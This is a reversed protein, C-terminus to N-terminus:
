IQLVKSSASSPLAGQLRRLPSLHGSVSVNLFWTRRFWGYVVFKKVQLQLRNPALFGAWFQVRGPFGTLFCIRLKFGSWFVFIRNAGGTPQRHSAPPRGTRGSDLSSGAVPEAQSASPVPVTLFRGPVYSHYPDLRSPSIKCHRPFALGFIAHGNSFGNPAWGNTRPNLPNQGLDM